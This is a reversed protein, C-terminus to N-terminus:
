MKEALSNVAQASEVYFLECAGNGTDDRRLSSNWTGGDPGFANVLYGKMTVIQGIRLGRIMKRVEDNAAIVHNNSASVKIEDEPIPPENQWEYFFFRNTMSLDLNKLVAEDSMKGWGVAVDIPVLDASPGSHYRKKGLVRGRLEYEAVETIQWEGVKILPKGAINKQVPQKLVLVGPPHHVPMGSVYWWVGYALLATAISKPLLRMFMAVQLARATGGGGGTGANCGCSAGIM